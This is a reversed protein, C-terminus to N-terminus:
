SPLSRRPRCPRCNMWLNTVVQPYSWGWNLAGFHTSSVGPEAFGHAEERLRVPLRGGDLRERFRRIPPANRLSAPRPALEYFAEHRALRSRWGGEGRALSAPTREFRNRPLRTLNAQRRTLRALAVYGSGQGFHAAPARAFAVLAVSDCSALSVERPLSSPDLRNVAASTFRRRNCSGAFTFAMAPSLREPDPLGPENVRARPAHDQRRAALPVSLDGLRPRKGSLPPPRPLKSGPRRSLHTLPRRPDGETRLFM